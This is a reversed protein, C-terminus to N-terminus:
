GYYDDGWDFFFEEIEDLDDLDDLNLSSVNLRKRPSKRSKEGKIKLEPGVQRDKRKNSLRKERRQKIDEVDDFDELEEDM